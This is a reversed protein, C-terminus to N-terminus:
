RGGRAHKEFVARAHPDMRALTAREMRAQQQPSRQRVEALMAEIEDHALSARGRTHLAQVAIDHLRAIRRERLWDALRQRLAAIM